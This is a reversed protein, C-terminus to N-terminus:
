WIRTMFSNMYWDWYLVKGEMALGTFSEAKSCIWDVPRGIMTLPERIVM